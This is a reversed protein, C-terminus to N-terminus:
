RLLCHTGQHFAAKQWIESPYESNVLFMSVLIRYSFSLYPLNKFTIIHDIPYLNASTLLSEESDRKNVAITNFAKIHQEM